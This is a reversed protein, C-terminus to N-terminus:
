RFFKSGFKTPYSFKKVWFKTFVGIMWLKVWGWGLTVKTPCSKFIVKCVGGVRWWLFEIVAIDWCSIVRNEHFKLILNRTVNTCMLLLTKVWAISIDPCFLIQYFFIPALESGYRFFTYIQTVDSGLYAFYKLTVVM